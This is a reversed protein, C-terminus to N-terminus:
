AQAVELAQDAEKRRTVAFAFIGSTAFMLISYIAAPMMMTLNGLMTGAIVIALTGNQLGCELSIAIVQKRNLSLFRALYFSIIMMVVNLALAIPGVESFYAVLHAREKMIAGLVVIVFLVTAVRRAMVKFNKTLIPFFQKVSMGIMVPVTTILFIGVITKAIPLQVAETAGMFHGLSFNVIFPITFVSIVSIIATLSISLATDGRALHTLLNSTVGGPCVALIMLGVSLAPSLSGISALAFAILPLLIMQGFAGIAFAKPQVIVRKFDSVTLTLGMSFMIFALSLPLFVQTIISM